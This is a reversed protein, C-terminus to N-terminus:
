GKPAASGTLPCVLEINWASQGLKSWNWTLQELKSKSVFKDWNVRIGLVKDWIVGIGLLNDWNVRIGLLQGLKSWNWTLQGM